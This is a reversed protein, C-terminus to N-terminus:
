EDAKEGKKNKSSFETFIIYGAYLAVGCCILVDAFNFIPFNIFLFKFYDVVVGNLVRDILNGIGGALILVFSFEEIKNPIKKIFIMYAIFLLAISTIIILFDVKGSLISFGAGPNLVYDLGLIHPILTMTSGSALFQTALYKLGQDFAILIFILIFNHM